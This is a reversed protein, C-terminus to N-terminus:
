EHAALFDILAQMHAETYHDYSPMPSDPLYTAPNRTVLNFYDPNHKAQIGLTRVLSTSLDGGFSSNQDLSHCNICANLYIERGRVAGEPLEAFNGSYFDATAQAYTTFRLRQVAYPKKNNPDLLGDENAIRLYHPGIKANAWEEHPQGDISLIFYPRHREIQARTYNSQYADACDALVFDQSEPVGLADMLDALFVGEIEAQHVTEGDYYGGEFRHTPLSRLAELPLYGQRGAGLGPVETGRIELDFDGTPAELLELTPLAPPETATADEAQALLIPTPATQGLPTRAASEPTAATPLTEPLFEPTFVE